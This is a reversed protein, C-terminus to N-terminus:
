RREADSVEDGSVKWTALIVPNLDGGNLCRQLDNGVLNFGLFLQRKAESCIKNTLSRITCELVKLAVSVVCSRGVLVRAGNRERKDGLKRLDM